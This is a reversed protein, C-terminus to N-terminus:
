ILGYEAEYSEKDSNCSKQDPNKVVQSALTAANAGAPHGGTGATLMRRLLTMVLATAGQLGLSQSHPDFTRTAINLRSAAFLGIGSGVFGM